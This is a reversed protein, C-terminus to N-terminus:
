GIGGMDMGMIPLLTAAIIFGVIIALIMILFAPFVAM